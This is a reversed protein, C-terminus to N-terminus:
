HQHPRAAHEHLYGHPQHPTGAIKQPLLSGLIMGVVSVGLGILQPPILSAEGILVEIIIWTGIGGIIAALAGQSTAKKWFAGFFLPVFAGALTIKYASEVMGFISLETNLAYFLVCLAFGVLCIRMVRLFGKDTLHPIYGRVINEAFSISPALLTASSCSMIASLVAGFFIAQTFIPTHQLVLTPLVRQSDELVLKGFLVPDILTAAYAIFMPVFTFCFYVSAGLISGWLAIKASKASTIRQFVDQQPISGLMMTMWGGLFTVWVWVDAGKPFLDLKGAARAHEIVPAVGGTMDSVISGIYLLGGIVVIMQVFDLVAVSFMGGFTTYTLVIATGLIMGTEESVAGNTIMNFILGLAKIQAAVWGLYSIVIAITTLVEVTRNYRMRYFDGLTIINLKYLQTSFFFGAIILCMSAGFPDAAVGNLGETVFTSSVGFIAEAGFWTAFVTAMVVPLPLHRGAVAYDKTNKVRTAAVLGITISILLYIAVFWILM